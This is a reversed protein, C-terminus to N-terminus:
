NTRGSFGKTDAAWFIANTFLTTYVKNGFLEPSHGMFIYINRAAVNENSWIVPHDGMKITTDPQYTSENVHAIVHIRERPSRDYTYWEDKDITFRGPINKMVPHSRDEVEVEARAFRAIYNKFRISGMFEYFWDWMPYGDFEGLLSAHHFGVWGGKGQIIYNRFASEAKPVWGYPPYDLQLFVQYKALLAESITDPKQIYDITFGSDLALQNLWIRAATSYAVHHGGNEYIALIRFRPEAEKHKTKYANRFGTGVFTLCLIFVILREPCAIIKNKRM